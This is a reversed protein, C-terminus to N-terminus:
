NKDPLCQLKFTPHPHSQTASCVNGCGHERERCGQQAEERKTDTNYTTQGVGLEEPPSLQSRCRITVRMGGAAAPAQSIRLLGAAM